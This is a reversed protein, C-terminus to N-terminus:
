MWNVRVRELWEELVVYEGEKDVRLKKLDDIIKMMSVINEEVVGFKCKVVVLEECLGFNEERVDMLEM